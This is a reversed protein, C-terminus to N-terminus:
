NQVKIKKIEGNKSIICLKNNSFGATNDLRLLTNKITAQCVKYRNALEPITMTKSLKKFTVLDKIKGTNKKM